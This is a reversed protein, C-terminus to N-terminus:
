YRGNERYAFPHATPSFTRVGCAIPWRAQPLNIGTREPDGSGHAGFGDGTRGEPGDAVNRRAPQVSM